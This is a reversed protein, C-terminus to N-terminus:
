HEPLLLLKVYHHRYPRYGFDSKRANPILQFIFSCNIYPQKKDVNKWFFFIAFFSYFGLEPEWFTSQLIQM